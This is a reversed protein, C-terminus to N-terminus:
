SKISFNIKRNDKHCLSRNNRRRRTTVPSSQLLMFIFFFISVSFTSLKRLLHLFPNPIKPPIVSSRRLLFLLVFMERERGKDGRRVKGDCIGFMCSSPIFGLWDSHPNFELQFHSHPLYQRLWQVYNHSVTRPSSTGDTIHVNTGFYKGLGRIFPM